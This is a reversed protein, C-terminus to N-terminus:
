PLTFSAINPLSGRIWKSRSVDPQGRQHPNGNQDFKRNTKQTLTVTQHDAPLLAAYKASCLEVYTCFLKEFLENDDIGAGFGGDFVERVDHRDPLRGLVEPIQPGFGQVGITEPTREERDEDRAKM